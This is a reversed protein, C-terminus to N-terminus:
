KQFSSSMGRIIFSGTIKYPKDYVSKNRVVIGEQENVPGLDSSLSKLLEDGLVMTAEYIVFSDIAVKSDKKNDVLESVPTGNKIALFVQKSLADVTKGSKLKLKEGKTNKALSLWQKLSKTETKGEDIVVSYNKSLVSEFNPNKTKSVTAAVKHFVKFDKEKAFPELSKIYNELDQESYSIESTERKKTTPTSPKIELLNHIVIFKGDYEQVNDKSKKNGLNEEKDPEDAGGVYEINLLINPNDILGLKKLQSKTSSISSNFIDLVTKGRTLMGHGEGFRDLLDGVTVGKVDLPKSSGRDLVFQRKEDINALRISTNIGDIKVPVNNTKVHEATKQFVSILDNGTKVSPIDFPHAMHGAAGGCLLLIRTDTESELILNHLLTRLVAREVIVDSIDKKKKNVLNYISMVTNKDVRPYNTKFADFDNAALDSRLVSASIGQGNMSKKGSRLQAEPSRGTYLIPSSDLPLLIVNVGPRYYKGGQQHSNVFSQVRAFDDGKTSSALAYTGPPATEIYKYAAKLPSPVDTSQAEVKPNRGLLMNWIALSQPRGIGDREEPGILIVVKDVLPVSAYKLALDLHGQHPPKFGGPFLVVTSM